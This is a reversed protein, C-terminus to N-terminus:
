MCKTWGQRLADGLETNSAKIDVVFPQDKTNVFGRNKGAPGWNITPALSIKDDKEHIILHFANRHHEKRNKFGAAKLYAAYRGDIDTTKKLNDRSKELHQRLTQGLLASDAKPDLITVNTSIVGYLDKIRDVTEIVIKDPYL